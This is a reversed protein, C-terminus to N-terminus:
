KKLLKKYVPYVLKYIDHKLFYYRALNIDIGNEKLLFRYKFIIEPYIRYYALFWKSLKWKFYTKANINHLKLYAKMLQISFFFSEIHEISRERSVRNNNHERYLVYCDSVSILKKAHLLVRNFYEADQNLKLDTNWSGALLCIKKPILYALPPIFSQKQALVSYFNHKTIVKTESFVNKLDLKKAKWFFDWSCTAIALSDSNNELVIVQQYLKNESLLDDDDLWQIYNGSSKLFGFNRCGCAGEPYNMSRKYYQFRNDIELLKLMEVETTDSGGDDVVICEWNQYTQDIISDLTEGILHARNYTPIIISVLNSM